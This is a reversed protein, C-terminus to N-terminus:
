WPIETGDIVNVFKGGTSERTSADITATIKGVAEEVTNPAEKLGMVRAGANGMETQVFGPHIAFTTLWPESAHIAVTIWNVAAKSVAYPAVKDTGYLACGAISGAGSSMSMWKPSRGKKEANELLGRLTQFLRLTGLANVDLVSRVDDITVSAPTGPPHAVGANPIVLDIYTIGATSLSTLLGTYHTDNTSELPYLLIKSGEATPSSTLSSLTPSSTDRVTGIVTHHPRSLYAKALANGLGRAVGTILVVTSDSM